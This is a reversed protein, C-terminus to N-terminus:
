QFIKYLQRVLNDESFYDSIIRSNKSAVNPDIPKLDFDSLEFTTLGLGKLTKSSSTSSDLYVAKGLGLLNIINGMGQQRRHNFIAIDIKSLFDLYQEYPMFDIMPVFKAGFLESGTKTVLQAYEQSGYSLPVYIKYESGSFKKLVDFVELHNNSPDASNGIQIVMSDSKKANLGPDFFINSTYLLCEHHIGRAGYWQRAKEVDGQVYTVLNGIRAIVFRRVVEKLRWKANRNGLQYVYLDGGWIFWYCKKLLWPQFFLVLLYYNSFLGHLIIKDASYLHRILTFLRALPGLLNAKVVGEQEAIPYRQTDGTLFFLHRSVEIRRQLLEIFPPIFKDM